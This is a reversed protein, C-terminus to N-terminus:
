SEEPVYIEDRGYSSKSGVSVTKLRLKRRRSTRGSQGKPFAVQQLVERLQGELSRHHETKARKNSPALYPTSASENTEAIKCVRYLYLLLRIQDSKQQSMCSKRSLVSVSMGEPGLQELLTAQNIKRKNNKRLLENVM